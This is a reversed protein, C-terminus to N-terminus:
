STKGEPNGFLFRFENRMEAMCARTENRLDNKIQNDYYYRTFRVLHM